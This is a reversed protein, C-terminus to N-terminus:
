HIDQGLDIPSLNVTKPAPPATAATFDRIGMSGKGLQMGSGRAMRRTLENPELVMSATRLVRGDRPRVLRANIFVAEQDAHYTGVIIVSSSSRAAIKGVDRSLAFEGRPKVTISGPMRYERVPYGRQNLEHFLQEAFLRGLSSTRSFDNLDVFSTPLAVAGQLSCDRMDAVLQEALERAKLQLERADVYGGREKHPSGPLLIIGGDGDPVVIGSGVDGRLSDVSRGAYTASPGDQGTVLSRNGFDKPGSACAGLFLLVAILLVRLCLINKGM